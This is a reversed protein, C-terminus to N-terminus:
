LHTGQINMSLTGAIFLTECAFVYIYGTKACLSVSTRMFQFLRALDTHTHPEHTHTHTHTHPRHTQTQTQTQAHTHVVTHLDMLIKSKIQIQIRTL